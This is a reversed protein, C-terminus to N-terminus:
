QSKSHELFSKMDLIVVFYTPLELTGTPQVYQGGLLGDYIEVAAQKTPDGVLRM